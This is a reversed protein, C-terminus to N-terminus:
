YPRTPESIHILSLYFLIKLIIGKLLLVLSTLLSILSVNVILTVILLVIAIIDFIVALLLGIWSIELIRLIRDSPLSINNRYIYDTAKKYLSYAIFFAVFKAIFSSISSFVDTTVM